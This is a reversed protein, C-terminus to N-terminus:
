RSRKLMCGLCAGEHLSEPDDNHSFCAWETPSETEDYIQFQGRM